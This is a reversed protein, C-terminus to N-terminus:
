RGKRSKAGKPAKPGITIALGLYDALREVSEVSLGSQGSLFRSLQSKSVGAGREIAGLSEESAEIAVRIAETLRPM